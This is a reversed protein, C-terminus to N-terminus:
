PRVLQLDYAGSGNYSKVMWIYYGAAGDFTVVETSTTGTGAAVQTWQSNKWQYLYLDFDTGAPGSLTGRHLGAGAQWYTGNPQYQNAGKGSLSGTFDEEAPTPEPTPEAADDGGGGYPDGCMDSYESTPGGVCGNSWTGYGPAPHEPFEGCAATPNWTGDADHCPTLDRGTKSEFWEMGTHMMSYYGGGGCAGGYSTIGFVRWTGDDLQVFVPGGSDGQCSDKGGGGIRIEGNSSLSQIPATVERKVGYPGTNSDGFGVITVQQGKKLVSTECGMLIPVIPVDDVADALTCYAWDDGSGPGGGPYVECHETAVWRGAGSSAKEGLRVYDYGAGCHAAYIVVDPAVLTGTCSGGLNVTTPWGCSAVDTGGYITSTPLEDPDGEPEDAAGGPTFAGADRGGEEVVDCAAGGM